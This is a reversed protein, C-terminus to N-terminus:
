LVSFCSGTQESSAWSHAVRRNQSPSPTSELNDSGATLSTKGPSRGGAVEYSWLIKPQRNGFHADEGSWGM